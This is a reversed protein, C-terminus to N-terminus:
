ADSPPGEANTHGLQKQEVVGAVSRTHLTVAPIDKIVKGSSAGADEFKRLTPMLRSDVSGVLSNFRDVTAHIAKQLSGMHGFAVSAREHLERGLTFLEQAEAALREERWGVAVARLLGILTSPSALIVGQQAATEILDTRRSLAADIFQDGPIFMVVFSPSGDFSRWYGKKGLAAAQEAVHGAFRQLHEEAREPSDAELADLYSRINTKADVAVVRQNPLNVIMDPKLLKGEADRASEQEAFDCYGTMGALEAVRRLQIEGYRGRVHPERLARVLKGTEERLGAQGEAVQRLQQELASSTAARDKELRELRARTQELTEGIPKILQTFATEKKELESKSAQTQASLREGALRLFGENNRELAKAALEGFQDALAKRAHEREARVEQRERELSASREEFVAHTKQVEARLESEVVKLHEVQARLRDNEERMAHAQDAEARARALDGAVRSRAIALLIAVGAFVAALVGFVVALLTEM